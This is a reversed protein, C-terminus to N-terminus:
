PAEIHDAPLLAWDPAARGEVIAFARQIAAQGGKSAPTLLLRGQQVAATGAREGDLTTWWAAVGGIRLLKVTIERAVLRGTVVEVAARRAQRRAEDLRQAAATLRATPDTIRAARDVPVLGPLTNQYRKALAKELRDALADLMAEVQELRQQSAKLDGIPKRLEVAQAGAEAARKELEEAERRVTDLLLRLRQKEGRWSEEERLLQERAANAAHLQAMAQEGVPADGSPKSAEGAGAAAALAAVAVMAHRLRNAVPRAHRM